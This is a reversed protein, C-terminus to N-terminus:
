KIEEDKCQELIKKLKKPVPVGILIANELLSIGENGIFFCITYFRFDLRPNTLNFILDIREALIIIFLMTAKKIAGEFAKKSNLEKTKIGKFIGSLYDLAMAILLTKIAADEGGTAYFVISLSLGLLYMGIEEFQVLVSKISKLITLINEM